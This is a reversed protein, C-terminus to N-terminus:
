KTGSCVIVTCACHISRIPSVGAHLMFNVVEVLQRLAWSHEMSVQLAELSRWNVNSAYLVTCRWYIVGRPEPYQYFVTLAIPKSPSFAPCHVTLPMSANCLSCMWWPLEPINDISRHSGKHQIMWSLHNPYIIVVGTSIRHEGAPTSHDIMISTAKHTVQTPFSDM